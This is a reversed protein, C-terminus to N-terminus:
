VYALFVQMALLLLLVMSWVWFRATKSLTTNLVAIGALIVAMGVIAPYHTGSTGKSWAPLGLASFVTDGHCIGSRKWTGGFVTGLLILVIAFIRKKLPKSTTM